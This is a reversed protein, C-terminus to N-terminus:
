AGASSAAEARVHVGADVNSSSPAAADPAAQDTRLNAGKASRRAIMAGTAAGVILLLGVVMLADRGAPGHAWVAVYGILPVSFVARYATAGHLSVKWPDPATNADGQTQVIPGAASPTLAIIRHVVFEGPEGPRHFVVVDRVQLTSTPVRETIVIGGVPLGPRMSGSLVPRMQYDGSIVAAAGLAFLGLVLVVMTNDLWRKARRAQDSHQTSM